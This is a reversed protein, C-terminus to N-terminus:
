APPTAFPVQKKALTRKARVIRQAITPEPALFGRAIEATTLGGLLRLTLAVRAEMSLVPHCAIFMLRLIDDGVPDDLATDWDPDDIEGLEADRALVARKNELTVNRRIRDIAMNKATRMLWPSPPDPIGSQPWQELAAVFSDQALEEALGVDRVLRSIAAIVKTSEIRWVAEITRHIDSSVPPLSAGGPCLRAPPSCAACRRSSRRPRRDAERTSSRNRRGCNTARPRSNPLSLTESSRPNSSRASRWRVTKATPTPSGSPTSSRRRSRSSKGCGTAPSSSRRS